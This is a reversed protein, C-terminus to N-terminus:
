RSGATRTFARVNQIRAQKAYDMVKVVDRWSAEEDARLVLKLKPDDAVAAKLENFLKDATVARNGVFFQPQTNAITVILPPKENSAGQKPAEGTEPLKLAVSPTNKFNTTVMLFVLLVILVDILSIIIIAPAARRRRPQFRM